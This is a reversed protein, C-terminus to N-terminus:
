FSTSIEAVIKVSFCFLLLFMGEEVWSGKGKQDTQLAKTRELVLTKQESNVLFLVYDVNPLKTIAAKNVSVKNMNFTISPENIHAFFEGRVVQYGEYSFDDDVIFEEYLASNNENMQAENVSNM